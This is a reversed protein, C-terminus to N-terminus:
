TGSIPSDRRGPSFHEALPSWYVLALIAGDLAYSSQYFVQGWGSDVYPGYAPTVGLGVVLSFLFLQRGFPRLRYLGVIGAIWVGVLILASVLVLSSPMVSSAAAAYERLPSPLRHETAISALPGIIALIVSVILLRRFTRLTM